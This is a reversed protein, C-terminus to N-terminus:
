GLIAGMTDQNADRMVEFPSTYVPKAMIPTKIWKEQDYYISEQLELLFYTGCGKGVTQM